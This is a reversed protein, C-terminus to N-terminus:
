GEDLPIPNANVGLESELPVRAHFRLGTPFFEFDCSGGLQREICIRIIALGLSDSKKEDIPVTSTEVWDILLQRGDEDLRWLLSVLGSPRGLAGHREANSILEQFLQAFPVVARPTLSVRPGSYVLRGSQRGLVAKALEGLEPWEWHVASLVEHSRALAMVRGTIAERFHDLSQTSRLSQTVLSQIIALTNKVRHDLENLLTRQHIDKRKLDSDAQALIRGVEGIELVATQTSRVFDPQGVRRASRALMGLGNGIIRGYFLAAVLSLALSFGGILAFNRWLDRLPEQLIEEPIAFAVIWGSLHSRQYATFVSVGEMTQGGHFSGTDNKIGDRFPQTGYLGVYRDLDRSRAIVRFQRDVISATWDAPVDSLLIRSLDAPEMGINLVYLVTNNRIVPVAVMVFLRKAFAGMYLDSVRAEGTEFIIKDSALLAPDASRPLPKGPVGLTNVLQQGDRDRMAIATGRLRVIQSAQVTFSDFDQSDILPSTALAQLAGIMGEIERDLIAGRDRAIAVASREVSERQDNSYRWATAGGLLVQPLLVMLSLIVLHQVITFRSFRYKARFM